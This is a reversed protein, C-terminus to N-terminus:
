HPGLVSTPTVTFQLTCFYRYRKLQRYNQPLTYPTLLDLGYDTLCDPVGRVRSLIIRGSSMTRSIENFVFSNEEM